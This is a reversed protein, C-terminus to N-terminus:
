KKKDKGPLLSIIENLSTCFWMLSSFVQMQHSWCNETTGCSALYSFQLNLQQEINQPNCAMLVQHFSELHRTCPWKLLIHYPLISRAFYEAVQNATKGCFYVRQGQFSGLVQLLGKLMCMLGVISGWVEYTKSLSSFAM